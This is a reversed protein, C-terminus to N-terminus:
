LARRHEEWSPKTSFLGPFLIANTHRLLRGERACASEDEDWALLGMTRLAQEGGVEHIEQVGPRDLYCSEGIDDGELHGSAVFEPGPFGLLFARRQRTLFVANDLTLPCAPVSLFVANSVHPNCDRSFSHQHHSHYHGDDRTSVSSPISTTVTTAITSESPFSSIVVDPHWIIYDGPEVPPLSVLANEVDFDPHHHRLSFLAAADNRREQSHLLPFQHHHHHHHRHHNAELGESALAPIWDAAPMRTTGLSGNKNDPPSNNGPPTSASSTTSNSTSTTSSSLSSTTTTTESEPSTPPLFFPRLVHYATMLKLPLPCIRLPATTTVNARAPEGDESSLALLGQFMRFVPTGSAASTNITSNCGHTDVEDRTSAGLWETADWPDHEEWNGSLINRHPGDDKSLGSFSSHYSHMQSGEFGCHDDCFSPRSQAEFVGSETRVMRLRDAYAVPFNTSVKSSLGNEAKSPSPLGQFDVDQPKEHWCGTMVFKQAALVNPHARSNLQALSWYLYYKDLKGPRVHDNNAMYNDLGNKWTKAEDESIVNRIIATGRVRLKALFPETKLPERDKNILM